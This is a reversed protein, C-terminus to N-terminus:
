DRVKAIAEERSPLIPWISDFKATELIERGVPSVSCVVFKGGNSTIQKWVIVLLELMISGFYDLAGMDIVAHRANRSNLDALLADCEGRVEDEALKAIEGIATVVVVDGEDVLRFYRPANM